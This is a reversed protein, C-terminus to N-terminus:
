ANRKAYLSAYQAKYAASLRDALEKLHSAIEDRHTLLGVKFLRSGFGGHSDNSTNACWSIHDVVRKALVADCVQAPYKAMDAKVNGLGSNRLAMIFDSLTNAKGALIVADIIGGKCSAVHGLRTVTGDTIAKAAIEGIAQCSITIGNPKPANIPVFAAAKTVVVATEKAVKAVAPKRAM